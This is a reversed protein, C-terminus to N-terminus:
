SRALIPGVEALMHGARKRNRRVCSAFCFSAGASDPPFRSFVGAAGTVAITM